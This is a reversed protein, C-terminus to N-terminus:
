ELGKVINTFYNFHFSRFPILIWIEAVIPKTLLESVLLCRDLPIVVKQEDVTAAKKNAM